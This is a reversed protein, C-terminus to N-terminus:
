DEKLNFKEKWVAIGFEVHPNESEPAKTWLPGHEVQIIYPSWFCENTNLDIYLAHLQETVPHFAVITSIAFPTGDRPASKWENWM